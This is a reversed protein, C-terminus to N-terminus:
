HNYVATKKGRGAYCRKCQDCTINTRHGKGGPTTPKSVAPCHVVKDLEPEDGDDWIFQNLNGLEYGDINGKWVSLNVCLNEAFDGHEVLFKAIFNFRKTYIGFNTQPNKKALENISELYEYSEIEGAVNWRWYKVNHKKIYNDIKEMTMQMDKRIMKTNKAWAPVTVNHHLKADRMAYCHQECGDCVGSCTGRIGTLKTGDNLVIKHAGPLTSFSYIAGMKKNGKTISPVTHETIKIKYKVENKAM